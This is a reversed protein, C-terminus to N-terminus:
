KVTLPRLYSPILRKRSPFTSPTSPRIGDMPSPSVHASDDETKRAVELPKSGRIVGKEDNTNHKLPLQLRLRRTAREQVTSAKALLHIVLLHNHLRRGSKEQGAELIKKCSVRILDQLSCYPTSYTSTSSSPNMTIS